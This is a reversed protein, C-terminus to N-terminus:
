AAAGSPAEDAKAAVAGGGFKTWKGRVLIFLTGVTLVATTVVSAEPGFIGGTLWWAVDPSFALDTFMPTVPVQQGSVELGFGSALLWNWAAHWGCVGWLSGEHAAYLSMFLGFLVINALGLFLERGPEINLGHFLGFIASNVIVALILGHRSALLQMLWGRFFIEETSGQIIFGIFLAGVPILAALGLSGAGEIQYGGLAYIIGVVAVLFALGILYGRVFRGFGNGNLGITALSRREFFWIWLCLIVTSAGFAAILIYTLQPWQGSNAETFWGTAMAPIVTGIQGVIVFVILLVIAAISWTRRHRPKREAYLERGTM